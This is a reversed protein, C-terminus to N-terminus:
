YHYDCVHVLCNLSSNCSKTYDGFRDSRGCCVISGHQCHVFAIGMVKVEFAMARMVVHDIMMM